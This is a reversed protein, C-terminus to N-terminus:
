LFFIQYSLKKEDTIFYIKKEDTIFHFQTEIHPRWCIETLQDCNRGKKVENCDRPRLIKLHNNNNKAEM